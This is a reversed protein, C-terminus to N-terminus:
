KIHNLRRGTVRFYDDSLLSKRKFLFNHITAVKYRSFFYFQKPSLTNETFLHLFKGDSYFNVSLKKAIIKLSTPTYLAIHQGHEFGYYSWTDPKPVKQPLLTTTFLINKSFQLMQRIEYLPDTLHEFVEFATVLEYHQNQNNASADFAKALINKAFKDYQYFEFGADRMLRVLLGYGGDYDFFRGDRKYFRHIITQSLKSM